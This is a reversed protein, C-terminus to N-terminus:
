PARPTCAPRSNEDSPTRSLALLTAQDNHYHVPVSCARSSFAGRETVMLESEGWQVYGRGRDPRTQPEQPYVSYAIMSLKPRM